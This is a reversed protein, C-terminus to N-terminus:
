FIWCDSFRNPGGTSPLSNLTCCSATAYFGRIPYFVSINCRVNVPIISCFQRLSIIKINIKFARGTHSHLASFTVFSSVGSPCDAITLTNKKLSVDACKLAFVWVLLPKFQTFAFFILKCFTAVHQQFANSTVRKSNCISHRSLWGGMRSKEGVRDWFVWGLVFPM